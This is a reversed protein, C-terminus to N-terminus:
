VHNINTLLVDWGDVHNINKFLVVWGDVPIINTFLVNWGDVHNINTFLSIGQKFLYIVYISPLDQKCVYIM